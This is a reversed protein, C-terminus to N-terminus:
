KRKLALAAFGILMLLGSTPEPVSSTVVTMMSMVRKFMAHSAYVNPANLEISTAGERMAEGSGATEGALIAYPMSASVGDDVLDDSVQWYILEASACTGAFLLWLAAIIKIAKM